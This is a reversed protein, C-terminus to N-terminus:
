LTITEGAMLEEITESFDKGKQDSLVNLKAYVEDTINITKFGPNLKNKRFM